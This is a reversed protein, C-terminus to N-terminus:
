HVSPDAYRAVVEFLRGFYSSRCRLIEVHARRYEAALKHTLTPSLISLAVHVLCLFELGLKQSPNLYNFFPRNM